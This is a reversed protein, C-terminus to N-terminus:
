SNMVPVEDWFPRWMSIPPFLTGAATLAKKTSAVMEGSAALEYATRCGLLLQTAAQQSLNLRHRKAAGRTVRFSRTGPRLLLEECGIRLSMEAPMASRQRRHLETGLRRLLKRPSVLKAMWTSRDTGRFLQGGARSSWEHVCDTLPAHIRLSHRGQEIADAGVRQLLRSSGRRDDTRDVLEIVSAGRVVVYAQALDDETFLYIRDHARRTILWSWYDEDRISPGYAQAAQQQYLGQMAGLDTLRGLRVKIQPLSDVYFPSEPTRPAPLQGLLRQPSVVSVPDDGLMAWGQRQLLARDMGRGVMLMASSRRADQEAALLIQDGFGRLEYEPQVALDRLRISPIIVRGFRMMQPQLQVHAILRRDTPRKIVLREAPRYGPRLSASTFEAPSPHQLVRQLLGHIALHNGEIAHIVDHFRPEAATPLRQRHFGESVGDPALLDTTNLASRRSLDVSSLTATM